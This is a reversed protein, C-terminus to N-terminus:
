VSIRGEKKYFIADLTKERDALQFNQDKNYNLLVSLAGTTNLESLTLEIVVYGRKDIVPLYTSM